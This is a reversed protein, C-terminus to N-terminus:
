ALLFFPWGGKECECVKAGFDLWLSLMRPMAQYIYQNGFQLARCLSLVFYMISTSALQDLTSYLLIFLIQKVQVM